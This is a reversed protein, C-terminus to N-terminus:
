RVGQLCSSEKPKEPSFGSRQFRLTAQFLPIYLPSIVIGFKREDSFDFDKRTFDTPKARQLPQHIRQALLILQDGWIRQKRFLRKM